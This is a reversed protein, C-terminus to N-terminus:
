HLQDNGADMHRNASLVIPSVVRDYLWLRKLPLAFMRLGKPRFRDVAVDRCLATLCGRQKTRECTHFNHYSGCVVDTGQMCLCICHACHSQDSSPKSGSFGLAVVGLCCHFVHRDFEWCDVHCVSVCGYM